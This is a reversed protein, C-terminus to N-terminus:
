CSLSNYAPQDEYRILPKGNRIGGWMPGCLDEFRPQVRLEERMWKGRESDPAMRYGRIEFAAAPDDTEFVQSQLRGDADLTVIEFQTMTTSKM